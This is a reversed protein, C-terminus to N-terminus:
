EEQENDCEEYCSDDCNADADQRLCAPMYSDGLHLVDMYKCAIRWGMATMLTYCCVSTCDAPAGHVCEHDKVYQCIV